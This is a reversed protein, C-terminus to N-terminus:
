IISKTYATAYATIRKANEYKLMGTEMFHQLDENNNLENVFPPYNRSLMIKALLNLTSRLMPLSSYEVRVSLKELAYRALSKKQGATFLSLIEDQAILVEFARSVIMDMTASPNIREMRVLICDAADRRTRLENYANNKAFYSDFMLEYPSGFSFIDINGLLPYEWIDQLVAQTSQREVISQPIQTAALRDDFTKVDAWSAMGPYVPYCYADVPRPMNMAELLDHILALYEAGPEERYDYRENDDDCSAVFGSLAFIVMWLAPRKM